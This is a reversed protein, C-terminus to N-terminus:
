RLLNRVSACAAIWSFWDSPVEAARVADGARRVGANAWAGLEAPAPEDADDTAGDGAPLM